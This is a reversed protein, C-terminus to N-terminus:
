HARGACPRAPVPLLAAASPPNPPPQDTLHLRAMAPDTSILLTLTRGPRRVELTLTDPDPQHIKQIWGTAVAPALEAVVAAIDATSLGM